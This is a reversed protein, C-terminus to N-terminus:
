SPDQFLLGRERMHTIIFETTSSPDGSPVEIVLSPFQDALHNYGTRVESRNLDDHEYPTTFLFVADAPERGWVADIMGFFVAEAVGSEALHGAYWGYAVTSWWWRDLVLGRRVRAQALVDLNEAHCALHLLQRALPSTIRERETLAYIERTLETLGSPMHTFEPGPDAWDLAQLASMQTSKGSRDLGEFVVLSGSRLSMKKGPM